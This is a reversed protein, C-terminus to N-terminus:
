LEHVPRQICRECYSEHFWVKCVRKDLLFIIALLNIFMKKTEGAERLKQQWM